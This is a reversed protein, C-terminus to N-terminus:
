AFRAAALNLLNIGFWYYLIAALIVVVALVTMVAVAETPGVFPVYYWGSRKSEM